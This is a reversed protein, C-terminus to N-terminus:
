SHHLGPVTQPSFTNQLPHPLSFLSTHSETHAWSQHMHTQEGHLSHNMSIKCAHWLPILHPPLSTKSPVETIRNCCSSEFHWPATVVNYSCVPFKNSSLGLYLKFEVCVVYMNLRFSIWWLPRLSLDTGLFLPTRPLYRGEKFISNNDKQQFRVTIVSYPIPTIEEVRYWKTKPIFWMLTLNIATGTPYFCQKHQLWIVNQFIFDTKNQKFHIYTLSFFLQVHFKAIHSWFALPFEQPQCFGVELFAGPSNKSVKPVHPFLM